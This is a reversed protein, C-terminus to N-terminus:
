MKGNEGEQVKTMNEPPVFYTKQIGKCRVEAVSIFKEKTVFYKEPIVGMGVDIADQWEYSIATHIKKFGLFIGKKPKRLEYIDKVRIIEGFDIGREEMQSEVTGFIAIAENDTSLFVTKPKCSRWEHTFTVMDGFSVDGM